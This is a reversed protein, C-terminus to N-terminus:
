NWQFLYVKAAMFANGTGFFRTLLSKVSGNKPEKEKTRKLMLCHQLIDIGVSALGM